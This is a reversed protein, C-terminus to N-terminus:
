YFIKRVYVLQMFLLMSLIKKRIKYAMIENMEIDHRMCIEFYCKECYSSKQM